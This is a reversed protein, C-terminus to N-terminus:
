ENFGYYLVEQYQVFTVKTVRKVKSLNNEDLNLSRFYLYLEDVILTSAKYIRNPVEKLYYCTSQKVKTNNAIDIPKIAECILFKRVYETRYNTVM